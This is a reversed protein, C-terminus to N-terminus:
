NISKLHDLAQEPLLETISAYQLALAAVEEPTKKVAADASGTIWCRGTTPWYDVVTEGFIRYHIPNFQRVEIGHPLLIARLIQIRFEAEARKKRTKRKM